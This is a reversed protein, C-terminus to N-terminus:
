DSVEPALPEEEKEKGQEIRKLVTDVMDKLSYSKLNMNRKEIFKEAYALKAEYNGAGYIKEAELMVDELMSLVEEYSYYRITIKCGYEDSFIQSLAKAINDLIHKQTAESFDEIKEVSEDGCILRGM